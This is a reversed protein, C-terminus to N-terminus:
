SRIVGAQRLTELFTRVDSEIRESAEPRETTLETIAQQVTGGQDLTRLVVAGTSNLQWYRGIREELLVMGDDTETLIVSKSIKITV